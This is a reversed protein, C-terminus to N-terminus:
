NLTACATCWYPLLEGKQNFHYRQQDWGQGYLTLVANYYTDQTSQAADVRQRQVALADADNALLPLLAASFGIPGDGQTKGNTTNIKEPPLGRQQTITLMPQFHTTLTIKEPSNADLMGAWLYVRIADYSGINAQQDDPQWGKTKNWIVWDPSFGNPSTELLLRMNTKEMAKWQDDLGAFRALLQPPLYSPNLRWKNKHHFGTKGPLLMVGLGPIDAVEERAIRALLKTGLLQYHNNKWLRGAELLDYALWLDADAASNYDLIKWQQQQNQGWLWAPLQATLDGKALNNETWQLLKDFTARDNNVLAFFLGYSQSESTTIKKPSRSDIIRGDDNIYYQKFQRWAPWADAATIAGSMVLLTFVLILRM